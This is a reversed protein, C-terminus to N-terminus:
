VVKDIVVYKQGGQIRLLLVKEGKVLSNHVKMKKKGNLGHVHEDSTKTEWDVTVNVEYDTVNKTLVLQASSLTIKQEVLIQLPSTNTVKGFCVNVPKLADNTEASTQKITKLLDSFDPM